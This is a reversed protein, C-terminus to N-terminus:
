SNRRWNGSGARVKARALDTSSPSTRAKPGVSNAMQQRFPDLLEVDSVATGDDLYGIRASRNPQQAYATTVTTLLVLLLLWILVKPRM